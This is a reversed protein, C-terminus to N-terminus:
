CGPGREPQSRPALAPTPAPAQRLPAPRGRNSRPRAPVAVGVGARKVSAPVPRVASRNSVSIGNRCRSITTDISSARDVVTWEVKGVRRSAGRRPRSPGAGKGAQAVLAQLNAMIRHKIACSTPVVLAAGTDGRLARPLRVSVMPRATAARPWHSWRPRTSMAGQAPSTAGTVMLQRWGDVECMASNGTSRSSFAFGAM